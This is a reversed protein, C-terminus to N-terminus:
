SSLAEWGGGPAGFVRGSSWFDGPEDRGDSDPVFLGCALCRRGYLRRDLNLPQGWGSDHGRVTPGGCLVCATSLPHTGLRVVENM